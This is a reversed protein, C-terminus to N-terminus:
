TEIYNDDKNVNQGIVPSNVKSFGIKELGDALEGVGSEECSSFNLILDSYNNNKLIM